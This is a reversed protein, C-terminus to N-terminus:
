YRVRIRLMGPTEKWQLKAGSHFIIKMLSATKLRVPQIGCSKM